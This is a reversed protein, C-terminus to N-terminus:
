PAIGIVYLTTRQLIRQKALQKVQKSHATPAGDLSLSSSVPPEHDPPALEGVTDGQPCNIMKHHLKVSSV